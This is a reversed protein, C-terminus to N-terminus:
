WPHYPFWPGGWYGGGWYGSGYGWYGFGGYWGPQWGGYLGYPYGFAYGYNSYGPGYAYYDRSFPYRYAPVQTSSFPYRSTYGYSRPQYWAGRDGFDIDSHGEVAESSYFDNSYYDARGYDYRQSTPRYRYPSPRYPSSYSPSSYPQSYGDGILKAPIGNGSGAPRSHIANVIRTVPVQKEAPFGTEDGRGSRNLCLTMPLILLLCRRFHSASFTM